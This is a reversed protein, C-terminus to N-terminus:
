NLNRKIYASVFAFLCLVYIWNFFCYSWFFTQFSGDFMKAMIITPVFLIVNRIINLYMSYTSKKIAMFFGNSIFFIPYAPFILASIKLYTTGFSIVDQNNSFISVIKDASLFIILGSILMLTFGYMVAKFYSEKVRSFNKAGFNQGIISIIATNLGLVPLLLIQEFRAASGYGATAYEGFVGIYAFIIFNGVSILLLAASIPASQFFLNKLLYVKPYFYKISIDKIRSSKIIKNFIILLGVFQAVITAVGIGVIGMAPIFGFGFIFLPNLIINLFFSLILINRFTKTDGDAHLLSNLAVVMIFIISGAFIVNTYKLSLLIVEDDSGMLAFLSPSFVLGIITILISILFAYIITNAFYGLVKEKNNEGISNAILSTGGVTVGVCAAIIIFYIPFSKALASLAEPSIKGAFFTDVVNFLTQFLTGVSAPLAIKKILSPIPDKTLSLASNM